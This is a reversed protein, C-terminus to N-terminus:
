SGLERALIVLATVIPASVAARVMEGGHLSRHLYVTDVNEEEGAGRRTEWSSTLNRRKQRLCNYGDERDV